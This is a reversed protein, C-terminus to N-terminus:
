ADTLGKLFHLATHCRHCVRVFDKPHNLIYRPSCTHRKGHIEHCCLKGRTQGCIICKQGLIRNIEKNLSVSRLRQYNAKNHLKAYTRETHRTLEESCSESCTLATSGADRLFPRGCRVCYHLKQFTEPNRRQKM